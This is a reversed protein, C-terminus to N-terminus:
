PYHPLTAVWGEENGDPNTGVGVITLGDASIAHARELTWGSLDLGFDNVLVERLDRMGNVADWIFAVYASYSKGVVVSGDASAALARSAYSGPLIGLGVMGTAATWRFAEDHGDANTSGGVVVSGDASTWDAYSSPYSATTSLFGLGKMGGAKTWRFAQGGTASDSEGVVVLGNCSVSTASSDVSSAGPLTGLGVMGDQETWVFGEMDYTANNAESDGVVVSGDCSADAAYADSAPMDPIFGLGVMGTTSEWRFVEGHGDANESSGIVVSGDASTWSAYSWPIPVSSSLYGIGQIGGTRTWRFAENDSARASDGVVVSGDPTTDAASSEFIGGPLDGVGNFTATTTVVELKCAGDCGDGATTNGDDCTEGATTNVTSDGCTATTCDADCTASEGGDDCDEGPDVHGDGCTAPSATVGPTASAEATAASEGGPGVATVVYYYATGNTRGAHIYPSTVAVIKTGTIPTVGTSNSWYLNYSTANAVADWTVTVSSDGATVVLNEPAVPPEGSGNGATSVTIGYISFGTTTGTVTSTSTNAGSGAIEQWQGNVAKALRLDSDTVGSPLATRDYAISITVPKEFKTGEPGFEYATGIHGAPPNPAAAVTLNAPQALSGNPITVKANGDNSSAVTEDGSTSGGGGGGGGCAALGFFLSGCVLLKLVVSSRMKM